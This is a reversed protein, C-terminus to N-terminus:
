KEPKWHLSEGWTMMMCRPLSGSPEGLEIARAPVGSVKPGIKLLREYTERYSARMTPPHSLENEHGTILIDTHMPGSPTGLRAWCNALMIDVRRDRALRRYIEPRTNDGNHLVRYGDMHMVYVCNLAILRQWGAYCHIDIPGVRVPQTRRYVRIVNPGSLSGASGAPLVITKGEELMMQLFSRNLHDHHPHSVVAVDLSRALKRLQRETLPHALRTGPHIDFGVCGHPGKVVFGMNYMKWVKLGERVTDNAIAKIAHSIFAQYFRGIQERWVPGGSVHLPYDLLLLAEKRVRWNGTSPPNKELAWEVLRLLRVMWAHEDPTDLDGRLVTIARDAFETGYFKIATEALRQRALLRLTAEGKGTFWSPFAGLTQRTLRFPLLDLLLQLNGPRNLNVRTMLKERRM